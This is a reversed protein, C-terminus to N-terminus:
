RICHSEARDRDEGDGGHQVGYPYACFMSHHHMIALPASPSARRCADATAHFSEVVEDRAGYAVAYGIGYSQDTRHCVLRDSECAIHGRHDKLVADFQELM